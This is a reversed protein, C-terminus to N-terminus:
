NILGARLAKAITQVRNVSDLKRTARSLYHNVTYESLELIRAMETTTKGAAAWHLCEIERRSLPAGKRGRKGGIECLRGFLYGSLFTLETMEKSSVLERTGGFGVAGRTGHIDHVPIYVGRVLGEREFLEVAVDNKGDDRERNDLRANYTFPVTSRRLHEIVPSGSLMCAADYSRLFKKSWNTMVVTESLLRTDKGPVFMVLYGDFGYAKMVQGFVQRLDDEHSLNESIRVGKPLALSTVDRSFDNM